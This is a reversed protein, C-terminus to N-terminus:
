GTRWNWDFPGKWWVSEAKRLGNGYPVFEFCRWQMWENQRIHERNAVEPDPAWICVHKTSVWCQERQYWVRIYAM